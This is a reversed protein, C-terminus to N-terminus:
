SPAAAVFQWRADGDARMQVTVTGVTKGGPGIADCRFMAGESTDADDPCDVKDVRTAVGPELDQRKGQRALQAELQDGVQKEVESVSTSGCGAAAGALALAALGAAATALKGSRGPM